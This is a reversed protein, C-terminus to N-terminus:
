DETPEDDDEDEDADLPNGYEDTTPELISTDADVEVVDEESEYLDSREERTKKEVPAEPKERRFTASIRDLLGNLGGGSARKKAQKANIDARKQLDPRHKLILEVLEDYSGTEFDDKGVPIINTKGEGQLFVLVLMRPTEIFTMLNEWEYTTTKGNQILRVNDDLYTEITTDGYAFKQEFKGKLQNKAKEPISNRTYRPESWMLLAFAALALSIFSDVNKVFLLAVASILAVIGTIYYMRMRKEMRFLAYAAQAEAMNSETYTFINYM